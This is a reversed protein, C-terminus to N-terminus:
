IVITSSIISRLIEQKEDASMRVSYWWHPVSILRYGLGLLHRRKMATLGLPRTPSCSDFHIPGDYEIIAPSTEGERATLLVDVNYIGSVVAENQHAFGAAFLHKSLDQMLAVMVVACLM